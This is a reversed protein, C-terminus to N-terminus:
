RVANSITTRYSCQSLAHDFHRAEGRFMKDYALNLFQPTVVTYVMGLDIPNKDRLRFFFSPSYVFPFDRCCHTHNVLNLRSSEPAIPQLYAHALMGDRPSCEACTKCWNGSNAPQKTGVRSGHEDDFAVLAALEKESVSKKVQTLADVFDSFSIPRVDHVSVNMIDHLDRIPGLAAERVLGDMDSGSYGDTRRVIEAKEEPTLATTQGKLLNEIIQLRGEAEPLPVYLKKRFRRRAAEDLESPRNTAGVVLVRDESNTGCGDFQVLFETKIRRTAEHEGDTRQSLLSDVEDVFIISPQNARAVAFLARMMKEGEGIWKSTLSSASISLFTANIQSAICKGILTKGTGPPGFLLLGKPPSRPGTFIDPRQMPWLVAERITEKAHKLGAIDDWSVPPAKEVVENMIKELLDKDIGRLREDVPCGKGKKKLAVNGYAASSDAMPNKFQRNAGVSAVISAASTAEQVDRMNVDGDADSISDSDQNGRTKREADAALLEKGSIFAPMHRKSNPHEDDSDMGGDGKRKKSNKRKDLATELDTQTERTTTQPRNIIVPAQMRPPMYPRNFSSSRGLKNDDTRKPAQKNNPLIKDIVSRSLSPYKLPSESRIVLSNLLAEVSLSSELKSIEDCKVAEQLRAAFSTDKARCLEYADTIENRLHDFDTASTCPHSDLFELAILADWADSGRAASQEPHWVSRFSAATTQTDDVGALM